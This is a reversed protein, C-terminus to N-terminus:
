VHQYKNLWMKYHNKKIFYISVCLFLLYICVVFMIISIYISCSKSKNSILLKLNNVFIYYLVNTKWWALKCKFFFVSMRRNVKLTWILHPKISPLIFEYGWSFTDQCGFLWVYVCVCVCVCVFVFVCVYVCECLCVLLCM